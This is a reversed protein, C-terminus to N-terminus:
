KGALVIPSDRKIIDEMRTNIAEEANQFTINEKFSPNSLFIKVDTYLKAIDSNRVSADPMKKSESSDIDNSSAFFFWHFM